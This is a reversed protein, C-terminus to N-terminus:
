WWAVALMHSHLVCSCSSCSVLTHVSTHPSDLMSTCFCLWCTVVIPLIFWFWRLFSSIFCFFRLLCLLVVSYWSIVWWHMFHIVSALGELYGGGLSCNVAAVASCFMAPLLVKLRHCRCCCGLFFCLGWVGMCVCLLCLDSIAMVLHSLFMSVLTLDSSTM